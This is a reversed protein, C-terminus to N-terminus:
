YSNHLEKRMEDSNLDFHQAITSLDINKVYWQTAQEIQGITLKRSVVKAINPLQALEEISILKLDTIPVALESNSYAPVQIIQKPETTVVLVSGKAKNGVNSYDVTVINEQNETVAVYQM